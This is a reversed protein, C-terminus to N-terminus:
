EIIAFQDKERAKEAELNDPMFPACNPLYHLFGKIDLVDIIKACNICEVEITGDLFLILFKIFFYKTLM